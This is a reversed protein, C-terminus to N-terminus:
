PPEELIQFQPFENRFARLGELEETLTGKESELTAALATAEEFKEKMEADSIGKAELERLRKKVEDRVEFAKKAESKQFAAAETLEAVKGNQEEMTDVLNGLAGALNEPVETVDVGLVAAIKGADAM